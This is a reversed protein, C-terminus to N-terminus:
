PNHNRNCLLALQFMERGSMRLDGDALSLDVNDGGMWAALAAFGAKPKRLEAM